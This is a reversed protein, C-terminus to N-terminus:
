LLGRRGNRESWEEGVMGRRGNRESWVEGVMGRRGYRECWEEGVIGRVGNRESWVEGVMGRQDYTKFKLMISANETVSGICLGYVLVSLRTGRAGKINHEGSVM